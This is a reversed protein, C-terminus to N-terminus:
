TMTSVWIHWQGKESSPIAPKLDVRTKMMLWGDRVRLLKYLQSSQILFSRSAHSKTVNYEVSHRWYPCVHCHIIHTIPLPFSSLDVPNYIAVPKSSLVEHPSEWARMWTETPYFVARSSFGFVGTYLWLRVRHDTALKGDWRSLECLADSSPGFWYICECGSM